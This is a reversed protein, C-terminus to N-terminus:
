SRPLQEPEALEPLQSDQAIWAKAEARTAFGLITHHVGDDDIVAVDHLASPGPKSWISYTAM